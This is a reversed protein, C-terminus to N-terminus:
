EIKMIETISNYDPTEDFSLHYTYDFFYKLFLPLTKKILINKKLLLIKENMLDYSQFIDLTSWEMEGYYLYYLIYGISILDDRRSLECHKHSYISAFNASGILRSTKKEPIHHNERLYSKCFGFDILYIKNKDYLECLFNDPKIDRHILGKEHISKIIELINKGIQIIEQLSIQPKRKKIQEISEGLLPIVMYYNVSDKGFWKVNPIGNIDKLYQYMIAENKLLKLNSQITEIKIAVKEHTRQNVGQFIDGFSGNGIKQQIEYKNVIIKTIM